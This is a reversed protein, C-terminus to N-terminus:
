RLFDLHTSPHMPSIERIAHNKASFLDAGTKRGPKEPVRVSGSFRRHRAADAEFLSDPANDLQM